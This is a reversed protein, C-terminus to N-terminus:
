LSYSKIVSVDSLQPLFSWVCMQGIILIACLIMAGIFLGTVVSLFPATDMQYDTSYSVSAVSNAAISTSSREIYYVILLPTLIMEPNAPDLTLRLTISKAYRVM